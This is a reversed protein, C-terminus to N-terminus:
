DTRRGQDARGGTIYLYFPPAADKRNLAGEGGSNAANRCGVHKAFESICAAELMHIQDVSSSCALVWMATYGKQFYSCFRQPINHTAGIKFICLRIGISERFCTIQEKCHQLLKGATQLKGKNGKGLRSIIGLSQVLDWHFSETTFTESIAM